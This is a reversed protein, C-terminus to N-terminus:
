TVKLPMFPINDMDIDPLAGGQQPQAQPNTNQNQQPLHQATHQGQNYAAQQQSSPNNVGGSTSYGQQPQQQPQQQQPPYQSQPQQQADRKEIFEFSDIKLVHKSRKQNDQTVWNEQKLQGSLLIRDKENFYQNLLEAQKGFAVATIWCTDEKAEGSKTKYKSSAVVNLNILPTGDQLYKIEKTHIRFLGHTSPLAM